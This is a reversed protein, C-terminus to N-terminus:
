KERRSCEERDVRHRAIRCHPTLNVM